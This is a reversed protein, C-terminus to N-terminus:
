IRAIYLYLGFFSCVYRFDRGSCFPIIEDFFAMTVRILRPSLARKSVELRSTSILVDKTQRRSEYISSMPVALYESAEQVSLAKTLAAVLPRRLQSNHKLNCILERACQRSKELPLLTHELQQLKTKLMLNEKTVM